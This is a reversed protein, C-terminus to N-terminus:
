RLNFKLEPSTSLYSPWDLALIIFTTYNKFLLTEYISLIIKLPVTSFKFFSFLKLYVILNFNPIKGHDMM